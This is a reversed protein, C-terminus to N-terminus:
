RTQGYSLPVGKFLPPWMRCIAEEALIALIQVNLSIDVKSAGDGVTSYRCFVSCVCSLYIVFFMGINDFYDEFVVKVINVSDGLM